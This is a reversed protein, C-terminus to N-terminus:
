DDSLDDNIEIIRGTDPYREPSATLLYADHEDAALFPVAFEVGGVLQSLTVVERWRNALVPTVEGLGHCGLLVLQDMDDTTTAAGAICVIPVAFTRGPQEGLYAITEGVALSGKSYALAATTDLVMAVTM